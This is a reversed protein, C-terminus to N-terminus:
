KKVLKSIRGDLKVVYTGPQLSCINIYTKGVALKSFALKGDLNYLSVTTAKKGVDVTFGDTTPNPYIIIANTNVNNINTGFTTKFNVVEGYSTGATNIAYACVYYTTNSSLGTISKGFTGTGTGNADKTVGPEGITPTADTSSYVVGRETVSAGGDSTIDGGMTASSGDYTNVTNTSVTATLPLVQWVLYPYKNNKTDVRDWITTFDWGSYTSTTQMNTTTKGTGDASTSQGSTQTDWFCNTVTGSTKMGLFGGYYSSGNSTVLGTSYCNNTIADDSSEGAFGGIWINTNGTVAGTAYCNNLTGGDIVGTFGGINNYDGSLTADIGVVSASSYCISTTSFYDWGILGGGNTSCIVAGTSHCNQITCSEPVGVLIGVSNYAKVSANVLGINAFTANTCYGFLGVNYQHNDYRNIYLNSIVYGQGNYSGKFDYYNPNVYEGIPRWGYYGGSGNSNWTSTASADIDATQKFYKGSFSNGGNTQDAVWKLNDLTAILYPDSSTGTGSPKGVELNVVEGYSTGATNIAYACVYYTTNSSLGTISKSFTGTGTGNADKTVGSEGITPTADTSSYVVGRETVSAGGDSTIDGGMTASSGDYVTITSTTVTPPVIVTLGTPPTPIPIADNFTWNTYTHILTMWDAKTASKTTGSYASNDNGTAPQNFSLATYDDVLDDITANGTGPLASGAGANDTGNAGVNTAWGTASITTSVFTVAFIFKPATRTGTFILLEDSQSLGALNLYNNSGTGSFTYDFTFNNNHYSDCRIITGATVGGSPVTYHIFADAIGTNSIFSGTLDSWGYDTFNIITGAELYVLPMFSFGRGFSNPDDTDGNVAVIIIDGPALTTSNAGWSITNSGLLLLVTLVLRTIEKKM